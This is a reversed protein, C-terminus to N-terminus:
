QESIGCGFEKLSECLHSGQVSTLFHLPFFDWVVSQSTGIIFYYSNRVCYPEYRTKRKKEKKLVKNLLNLFNFTYLVVTM